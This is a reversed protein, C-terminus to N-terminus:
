GEDTGAPPNPGPETLPVGTPPPPKRAADIMGLAEQKLRIAASGIQPQAVTWATTRRERESRISAALQLATALHSQTEAYRRSARSRKRLARRWLRAAPNPQHFGALGAIMGTALYLVLFLLAALHQSMTQGTLDVSQAQGDVNFTPVDSSYG